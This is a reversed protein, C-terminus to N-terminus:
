ARGKREKGSIWWESCLGVRLLTCAESRHVCFVGVVSEKDWHMHVETCLVTGFRWYMHVIETYLVTCFELVMHVFKQTCFGYLVGIGHTCIETYLVTCFELVMHVLKQTCLWVFSWYCIYLNRHVSGYLVGIVHTCIETYL